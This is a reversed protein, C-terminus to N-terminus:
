QPGEGLTTGQESGHGGGTANGGEITEGKNTRATEPGNGAEIWPEQQDTHAAM